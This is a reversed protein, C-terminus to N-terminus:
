DYGLPDSRDIAKFINRTGHAGLTEGHHPLGPRTNNFVLSGGVCLANGDTEYRGDGALREGDPGDHLSLRCRCPRSRQRDQTSLM